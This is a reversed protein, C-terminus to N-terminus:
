INLLQTLYKDDWGTRLRRTTLGAKAKFRSPASELIKRALSFNQDLYGTRMRSEAERFVVDLYWHLSTEIGWHRRVGEAIRLMDKQKDVTTVSSIYYRVQTTTQEKSNCTLNSEVKVLTKLGM